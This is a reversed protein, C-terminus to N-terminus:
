QTSSKNALHPSLPPRSIWTSCFDRKGVVRSWAFSRLTQIQAEPKSRELRHPREIKKGAELTTALAALIDSDEGGNMMAAAREHRVHRRAGPQRSRERGDIRARSRSDNGAYYLFFVKCPQTQTPRRARASAQRSFTPSYGNQFFILSPFAILDLGTMVRKPHVILVDMEPLHKEIWSERAEPKVTDPMVLARIGAESLLRSLKPRVDHVGTFQPYIACRRHLRLEDQVIEVLKTDKSDAHDEGLDAPFAVTETGAVSASNTMRPRPLRIGAGRNTLIRM